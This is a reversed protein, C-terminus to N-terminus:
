WIVQFGSSLADVVITDHNSCTRFAINEIQQKIERIKEACYL